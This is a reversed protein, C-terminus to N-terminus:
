WLILTATWFLFPFEINLIGGEGLIKYVKRNWQEVEGKCYSKEDFKYVLEVM